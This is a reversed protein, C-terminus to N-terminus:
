PQSYKNQKKHRIKKNTILIPMLPYKSVPGEHVHTPVETSTRIPM